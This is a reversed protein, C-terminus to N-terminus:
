SIAGRYTIKESAMFLGSNIAEKISDQKIISSIFGGWFADGAGTVGIVKKVPIIPQFRIIENDDIFYVGKSGCTLIVSKRVGLEIFKLIIEQPSKEEGFLQRADDISPKVIDINSLSNLIISRYSPDNSNLEPRFNPEFSILKKQKRAIELTKLVTQRLPNISLAHASTHVIKVQKILEELEETFSYLFDAKKFYTAQPPDVHENIFVLSTNEFPVVKLRSIDVTYANFTEIIFDGFFDSGVAGAFASKINLKSLHIAVNAPSGGFYRNYSQLKNDTAIMDILVEGLCLVENPQNKM